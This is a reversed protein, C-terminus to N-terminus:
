ATDATRHGRLWPDAPRILCFTAKLSFLNDIMVLVVTVAMIRLLQENSMDQYLRLLGVGVIGVLLAFQYQVALMVRPYRPGLKAYLWRLGMEWMTVRSRGNPAAPTEGCETCM